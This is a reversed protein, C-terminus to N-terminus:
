IEKIFGENIMSNFILTEGFTPVDTEMDSILGIFTKIMDYRISYKSSNDGGKLERLQKTSLVLDNTEEDNIYVETIESDTDRSSADDFVFKVINEVDLIYSKNNKNM